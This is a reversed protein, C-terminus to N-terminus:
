AKLFGNRGPVWGNIHIAAIHRGKLSSGVSLLLERNKYLIIDTNRINYMEVIRIYGGGQTTCHVPVPM